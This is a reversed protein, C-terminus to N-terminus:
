EVGEGFEEDVMDAEADSKAVHVRGDIHNPPTYLTYIQLPVSGSNIFNHKTGPTVVVVDGGHIPSEIGNLIAKGDGSLFFLAQEVHEHTEEGVSEGPPISMLVLQSKEGTFLVTRFNKNAETEKILHSIYSM